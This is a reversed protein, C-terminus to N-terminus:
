IEKQYKYTIIIIGLIDFLVGGLLGGKFKGLKKKPLPYIPTDILQILPTEKRLNVRALELNTVLQTLIATNAQVDVQRKATPAKYINFATNLNYVNDTALAVGSIANNLERRVSDAQRELVEVNTRAKKSKTEIYFAAVENVLNECFIKAFKEDLEKVDVTIISIKKDKQYVSVADKSLKNYVIALVSDQSVSHNKYSLSPDFSHLSQDGLKKFKIDLGTTSLYYDMISKNQEIPKLLAREFMRRSKLLELLNIGSFAGGASTGIDVGLSSALGLAGGLPNGAGKDDDLAFTITATYETKSYLSIIIGIVGGLIAIIILVAWKRLLFRIWKVFVKYIDNISLLGEKNQSENNM